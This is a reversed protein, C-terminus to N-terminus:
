SGSVTLNTPITLEPVALIIRALSKDRSVKGISFQTYEGLINYMRVTGDELVCVLHETETWGM